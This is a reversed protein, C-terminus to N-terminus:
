KGRAQTMGRRAPEWNPDIKLARDFCYMARGRDGVTLQAGGLWTWADVSGPNLLVAQELQILAEPLEGLMVLLRGANLRAEFSTPQLEVARAFQGLAEAKRGARELFTGYRIYAVPYNNRISLARTFYAEAEATSAGRLAAIRGLALLSDLHVVSIPNRESLQLAKNFAAVAADWEQREAHVNGMNFWTDAVEPAIQQAREYYSAADERRNENVALNGLNIYAVWARPSKQITDQWLREASEYAFGQRFTLASLVGALLVTVGIGISARKIRRVLLAIGACLLTTIAISALHQFHDAVFSYRHPYVNAFGLAPFLTGVFLLGGAAPGRGIRRQAVVLTVLIVCVVIPIAWQGPSSPDITWREYMFALPHPWVLKSAYFAVARGAILTRAAVEGPWTDSYDWAPGVAGVHTKELGATILGAYVAFALFPALLILDRRRVRARKWWAVVFYAPLFTATVTKSLLAGVYLVLSLLWWRTRPVGDGDEQQDAFPSRAAAPFEFGVGSKLLALFAAIYLLGSLANKRETIWAVSEVHVPHLAFVVAALYAGPVELRWLLRWLLLATAIHLLLNTLKFGVPWLGPQPSGLGLASYLQFEFWYSTHVLPYWQPVSRIETWIRELGQVSRLTPNNVVYDPDDWIFGGRLSPAYAVVTAAALCLALLLIRGRASPDPSISKEPPNKRPM